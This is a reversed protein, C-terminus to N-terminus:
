RSSQTQLERRPDMVPSACVLDAIAEPAEDVTMGATELLARRMREIHRALTYEREFKARGARAMRERLASDHALRALQDAVADPDHPQVLVGTKGDDVVSPIGRWRTAVIPLGCAMAELLVVPMAECAYHSPFCFVNARRFADIKEEGLLAGLFKIHKNLKLEEIRQHARVAFEDNEWQGMVELEFQVGRAALNACAEILVMVGKPESLIGVFLMRLRDDATAASKSRSVFLEPCPDDIGNPIVYERKAALRRGDQPNLESLRIAADAGFYARRFMWRQWSPLRDYMECVGGAHFHFVTKDFLWRTSNLIVIDRYMPVRHTGGPPYYLVRVGDAFRHYLIRLILGFLHMVKSLRFRGVENVHSSFNMRVHILQVNALESTVLRKIMFAQGHLPPPTQGVVLVKTAAGDHLPSLAAPPAIRRKM